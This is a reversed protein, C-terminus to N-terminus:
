LSAAPPSALDAPQHLGVEYQRAQARKGCCQLGAGLCRYLAGGLGRRLTQSNNSPVEKPLCFPKGPTKGRAQCKRVFTAPLGAEYHTPKGWHGKVKSM